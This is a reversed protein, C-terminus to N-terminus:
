RKRWRLSTLAGKTTCERPTLRTPSSVLRTAWTSTGVPCLARKEMLVMQAFISVDDDEPPGGGIGLAAWDPVFPRPHPVFFTDEAGNGQSHRHSVKHQGVPIKHASGSQEPQEDTSKGGYLVHYTEECVM